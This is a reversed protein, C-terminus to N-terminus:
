IRQSSTKTQYQLMNNKQQVCARKSQLANDYGQERRSFRSLSLLCYFLTYQEIRNNAVKSNNRPMIIGIISTDTQKVTYHALDM